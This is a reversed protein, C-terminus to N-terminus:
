LRLKCTNSKLVEKFLSDYENGCCLWTADYKLQCYIKRKRKFHSKFYELNFFQLVEREACGGDRLSDSYSSNPPITIIRSKNLVYDKDLVYQSELPCAVISNKGTLNRNEYLTLVFPLVILEDEEIKEKDFESKPNIYFIRDLIKISDSTNNYIKLIFFYSDNFKYRIPKLFLTVDNKAYCINFLFFLNLIAFIRIM